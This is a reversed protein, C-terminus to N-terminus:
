PMGHIKLSTNQHAPAKVKSSTYNLVTEGYHKNSETDQGLSQEEEVAHLLEGINEELTKM